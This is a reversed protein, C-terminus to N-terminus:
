GGGPADAASTDEPADLTADAEADNGAEMGGDPEGPVASDPGADSADVEADAAGDAMGADLPGVTCFQSGPDPMAADLLGPGIICVGQSVNNDLISAHWPSGEPDACIYGDGTRCDSNEKCHEMCFAVGTRAPAQYDNYSCGPVSSQFSVCVAKDPCSDNTCNLVTCYGRPQSTDCVRDGSPSCDTSLSCSAGIKPTCGALAFSAVAAVGAILASLGGGRRQPACARSPRACARRPWPPWSFARNTEPM